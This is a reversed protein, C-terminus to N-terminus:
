YIQQWYITKETSNKPSSVTTYHNNFEDAFVKPDTITKTNGDIDIEICVPSSDTSKTKNIIQNIGRWLKKANNCNEEFYNSYYIKKASRILKTIENKKSKYESLLYQKTEPNNEKVFKHYTKDKLKIQKLIDNNIWPKMNRKLKSNTLKITKLPAHVDLLQNFVNLFNIGYQNLNGEPHMTWDISDLDQNFKLCNIQKYKRIQKTQNSPKTPKNTNLDPIFAFQPVHDSIGVTLNGSIVDSSFQNHFINDILTKSTKGIRTPRTILPMFKNSTLTDFYKEIESDKDLHLLNMNFDGALYCIKNEKSIKNILPTLILNFKNQSINHHRYVCGIIINKSKPRLIEIFTSEIQKPEYIELDKRPKYDHRDSIYILTGGKNAETPTHEINYNSINIDHTPAIGKHLKTESITIIDFQCKLSDLLIDLDQKHFQLSHTNLHFISFYNTNNFKKTVFDDITYYNCFNSNNSDNNELILKSLLNISKIENKTLNITLNELNTENNLGLINTQSFTKDSENGFPLESNICPNCFFTENEESEMLEKYKTASIHNCNIHVWQDCIDCCVAKANGRVNKLCIRCPFNTM